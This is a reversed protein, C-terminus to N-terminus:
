KGAAAKRRAEALKEGVVGCNADARLAKEYQKIANVYNGQSFEFDGMRAPGSCDEKCATLSAAMILAALMLGTPMARAPAPGGDPRAGARHSVSFRSVQM